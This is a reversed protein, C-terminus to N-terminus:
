TRRGYGKINDYASRGFPVSYKDSQIKIRGRKEAAEAKMNSVQKLDAFAQAKSANFLLPEYRKENFPIYDDSMQFDFNKKGYCLTKSAQLTTDMVNNYSNFVITNNDFTTFYDPHRDNLCLLQFLGGESVLDYKLVNTEEERYSNIISLFDEKPLYEIKILQQYNTDEDIKDYKIWEVNSINTPIHMEVPKNIDNSSDLHFLTYEEPLEIHAIIEEYCNKVITAVQMSEVTDSISNVEDSDMSSLIDQVYEILPKPM